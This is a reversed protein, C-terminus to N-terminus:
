RCFLKNVYYFFQFAALQFAVRIEHFHPSFNNKTQKSYKTERSCHLSFYRQWFRYPVRQVLLRSSLSLKIVGCSYRTKMDFLCSISVRTPVKLVCSVSLCAALLMPSHQRLTMVVMEVIKKYRSLSAFRHLKEKSAYAAYSLWLNGFQLIIIYYSKLLFKIFLYSFTKLLVRANVILWRLTAHLLLLLFPCQPWAVRIDISRAYSLRDVKM